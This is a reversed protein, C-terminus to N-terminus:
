LGVGGKQVSRQTIGVVRRGKPRSWRGVGGKKRASLLAVLFPPTCKPQSGFPLRVETKPHHGAQRSSGRRIRSPPTGDLM